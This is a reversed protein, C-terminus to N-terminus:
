RASPPLVFVGGINCREAVIGQADIGGFFAAVVPRQADIIEAYFPAFGIYGGYANKGNFEGCIARHDSGYTVGQVNRFRAAEPDRLRDAVARQYRTLQASSLPLARIPRTRAQLDATVRREQELSLARNAAIEEPTAPPRSPYQPVPACSALSLFVLACIRM